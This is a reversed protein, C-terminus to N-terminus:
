PIYLVIGNDPSLPLGLLPKPRPLEVERGLYSYHNRKPRTEQISDGARRLVEVDSKITTRFTNDIGYEERLIDCLETTTLSHEEDTREQLIQLLYLPRLKGNIDM